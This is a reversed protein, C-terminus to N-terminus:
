WEDRDVRECGEEIVQQIEALDNKDIAGAFRLLDAGGTGQKQETALAKAFALVKQQQEPKLQGLQELLQREVPSM